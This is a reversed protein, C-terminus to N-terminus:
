NLYKSQLIGDVFEPSFTVDAVVTPSSVLKPTVKGSRSQSFDEFDVELSFDESSLSSAYHFPVRFTVSVKDPLLILEQRRPVNVAEIPLLYTIEVYREVSVEYRVEKESVRVGDPLELKALGDVTRYLGELSIKKTPINQVSLLHVLEGYITVSDPVLRVPSFTMYQPTYELSGVFEVPVKRHLELPYNLFLTDTFLSELAVTSGLAETVLNHIDDSLVYFRENELSSELPRVQEPEVVIHLRQIEKSWQDRIITFGRTKGRLYLSNNATAIRTRGELNTEVDLEYRFYSSYENSLAYFAWLIFAIFICLLLAWHSRKM